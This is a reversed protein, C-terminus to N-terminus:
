LQYTSQTLFLGKDSCAVLASPKNTVAACSLRLQKVCHTPVSNLGPLDSELAGARGRGAPGRGPSPSVLKVAVQSAPPM